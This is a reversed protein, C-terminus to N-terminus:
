AEVAVGQKRLQEIVWNKAAVPDTWQPEGYYSKDIRIEGELLPEESTAPYGYAFGTNDGGVGLCWGKDGTEHARFNIRRFAAPHALAFAVQDIQLSEGPAKVTIWMELLKNVSHTCYTLLVEVRKGTSELLDVLAVVAAGKARLTTASVGCSASGNLTVRVIETGYGKRVEDTRQSTLVCEPDGELLRGMSIGCEGTEAFYFEEVPILASIQTYFAESLTQVMTRGEEWGERALRLANDYGTNLDWEERAGNTRSSEETIGAHPTSTEVDRLYDSWCDWREVRRPHNGEKRTGETVIAHEHGM